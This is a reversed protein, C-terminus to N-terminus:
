IKAIETFLLLLSFKEQHKVIYVWFGSVIVCYGQKFNQLM